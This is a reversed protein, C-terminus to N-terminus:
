QSHLGIIFYAKAVHRSDPWYACMQLDKMYVIVNSASKRVDFHVCLSKRQVYISAGCGPKQIAPRVFDSESQKSPRRQNYNVFRM